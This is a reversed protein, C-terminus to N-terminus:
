QWMSTGYELSEFQRAGVFGTVSSVPDGKIFFGTIGAHQDGYVHRRAILRVGCTHQAVRSARRDPTRAAPPLLTAPSVEIRESLRLREVFEAFEALLM